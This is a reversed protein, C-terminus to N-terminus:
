KHDRTHEMNLVHNCYGLNNDKRMEQIDEQIDLM